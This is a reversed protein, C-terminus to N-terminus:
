VGARVALLRAAVGAESAVEEMSVRTPAANDVLIEGDVITTRVDSGRAAYVLTSFADVDPALHFRRRSVLIMDAKKGAEISGIESELGLTRAGARTAMWLADRATLAGPVLRVSQLMAALRMEEFMDLRNNCAAGDAGLSVTIGRKRMEVVPAIGSGLKLNSSPCHMVKVDHEALMTQDHEDAWVCHAACLRPTALHVANLYELNSLGGSLARVIDVEERAEAAHTHVLAGLDASLAAVAELLDRTCSVAFRPAFAVRLRDNAAGHWRTRLAQSEDLSSQTREKLRAPVDADADMMCKGVTARIGSAAVAECVADTDHVTEMTLIATTGSMLLETTALRAAATLTAATHAAEMPWVRTRLWQMLPMDDAYSRFLTQCLHIHTQILGPLLYDGAADIVRDFRGDTSAGVSVIRGNQIAVDGRLVELGDNMTVITADRILLSM